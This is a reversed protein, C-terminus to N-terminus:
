SNESLPVNQQVVGVKNKLRELESKLDQTSNAGNKAM